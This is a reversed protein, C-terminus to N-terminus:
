PTVTTVEVPLGVKQLQPEVLKRDGVVVFVLGDPQLQARIATNLAAADIQRYLGPLRADYDEPRGLLRNSNIAGLVQGNTQYSNALGRINGDTVRQVEEPTVPKDSALAKMDAVMALISDGTRDTQVPAVVLLSRQGVPQRVLSQVGYTWSKEERLDTNLRSLFDAGLVENGLNLAEQGQQTGKLPLLRGAVIMSQPSNPRDILV